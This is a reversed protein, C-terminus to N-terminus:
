KCEGARVETITTAGDKELIVKYSECYGNSIWNFFCLRDEKDPAQWCYVKGSGEDYYQVVAKLKPVLSFFEAKTVVNRLSNNCIRMVGDDECYREEASANGLTVTLLLVYFINKM